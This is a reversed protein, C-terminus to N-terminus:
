RPVFRELNKCLSQIFWSGKEKNRLSVYSPPTSMVILLDAMSPISGSAVVADSYIDGPSSPGDTQAPVGPGSPRDTQDSVEPRAPRNAPVPVGKEKKNDQCAQIFFLKPKEILSPCQLGNLPDTLEELWVVKGDVGYVGGELGHSLVVCAVCDMGSHDRSALQQVSALM